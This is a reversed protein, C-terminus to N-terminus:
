SGAMVQCNWTPAVEGRVQHLTDEQRFLGHGALHLTRRVNSGSTRRIPFRPQSAIATMKM